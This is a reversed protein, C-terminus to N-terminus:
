GKRAKRLMQMGRSPEHKTKGAASRQMQYAAALAQKQPHGAKVMESVNKAFAKHGPSRILPM